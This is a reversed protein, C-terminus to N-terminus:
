NEDNEGYIKKSMAKIFEEAGPYNENLRELPSASGLEADFPVVMAKGKEEFFFILLKRHRDSDDLKAYDLSQIPFLPHLRQGFAINMSNSLFVSGGCSIGSAMRLSGGVYLNGGIHAKIAELDGNIKCVGDVLISGIVELASQCYLQGRVTLSSACYLQGSIETGDLFSVSSFVSCDGEIKTFKKFVVPRGSNVVLDGSFTLTKGRYFGNGDFDAETLETKM